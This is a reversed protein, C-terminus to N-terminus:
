KLPPARSLQFRTSFTVFQAKVFPLVLGSPAIEVGTLPQEIQGLQTQNGQVCACEKTVQASATAAHFHLPLFFVTLFLFLGIWRKRSRYHPSRQVPEM